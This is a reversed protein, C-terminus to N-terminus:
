FYRELVRVTDGPNIKLDPTLPYVREETEGARKILVKRKNARYTYGEATAVAEMVTLNNSYPYTGPKSVEGLIFFPRYTLVDLSVRPDRLYGDAYRNRVDVAVDAPTRGKVPVAGILPLSLSGDDSVLFEGSLNEENYVIIRVKDGTGLRYADDAVALPAPPSSAAEPVSQACSPLGSVAVLCATLLLVTKKM